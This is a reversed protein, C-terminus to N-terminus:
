GHHNYDSFPPYDSGHYHGRQQLDSHFRMTSYETQASQQMLMPPQVQFANSNQVPMAHPQGHPYAGGQHYYSPYGGYMPPPPPMSGWGNYPHHYMTPPPPGMQFQPYYSPPPQHAPPVVQQQALQLKMKLTEVELQLKQTAPSVSKAPSPMAAVATAKRPAMTHNNDDEAVRKRGASPRLASQKNNETAGGTARNYSNQSNLSKHRAAEAVEMANVGNVKLTNIILARLGHGTMQEWDKCGCLKALEKHNSRLKSPGLNYNSTAPSSPCYWVDKGYEKVYSAIQTKTAVKAYFKTAKPHCHDLYKKVIAVPDFVENSADEAVTHLKMAEVPLSTNGLKLQNAKHYPIRVGFYELGALDVGGDEVTYVGSETMAMMLDVHEQSGRLGIFYGLIFTVVLQLHRPDNLDITGNGIAEVLKKTYQMDAKSKNPHTGYLPDAKRIENWRKILVGHFGGAHNFDKAFNFEIGKDKWVYSLQKMMTNFSCPQLPKGKNTGSECQWKMACLILCYELVQKKTPTKDGGCLRYLAYDQVPGNGHDMWEKVLYPAMRSGGFDKVTQIFRRELSLKTEEYKKKNKGNATGDIFALEEDNLASGQLLSARDLTPLVATTPDYLPPLRPRAHQQQVLSSNPWLPAEPPLLPPEPAGFLGLLSAAAEQTLLSSSQQQEEAEEEDDEESDSDVPNFFGRCAPDHRTMELEEDALVPSDPSSGGRTSAQAVVQSFSMDGMPGASRRTGHRRTAM